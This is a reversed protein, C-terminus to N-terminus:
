TKVYLLLYTGLLGFMINPTWAAIAPRLVTQLGLANFVAFTAWYVLVLLLAVGIGYLSGRRGVKFAFPLGLLVMVLPTTSRAFKEHYAVSLRTNDYGSADLKEIEDRLEQVSLQAPLNEDVRDLEQEVWDQPLKLPLQYSGEFSEFSDPAFTRYWGGEVEWAGGTFRARPAYRHGLVRPADRDLEFISLERFERLGPDFVRHHFLQNGEPGIAWRGTVPLGHTRPARDMIQDKIAEANRNAVPAIRDQVLFLLACMLITAGIVSYTARRLGIGSAMMAV